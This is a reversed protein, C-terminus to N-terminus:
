NASNAAKAIALIEGAGQKLLEKALEAGLEEAIRMESELMVEGSAVVSSFENAMASGESETEKKACLEKSMKARRQEKGDLSWVGGELVITEKDGEIVEAHAAVPASCGGELVRMFAREAINELCSNRHQLVGVLRLTEKDGQRCEIALSGQGVAHLCISSPM